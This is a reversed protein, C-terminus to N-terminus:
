GRVAKLLTNNRLNDKIAAQTEAKVRIIVRNRGVKADASYGNGAKGAMRQGHSMCEAAIESSQLLERVGEENLEVHMKAM